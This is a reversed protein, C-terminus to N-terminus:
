PTGRADDDAWRLTVAVPEVIDPEAVAEPPDGDDAEAADLDVVAHPEDGGSSTGDVPANTGGSAPPASLEAEVASDLADAETVRSADAPEEDTPSWGLPPGDDAPGVLDLAVQDEDVGGIAAWLARSDDLGDGRQRGSPDREDEDPESAVV